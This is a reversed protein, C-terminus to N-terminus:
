LPWCNSKHTLYYIRRYTPLNQKRGQYYQCRKEKGEETFNQYRERAKKQRKNKKEKLFIKIDKMHKKRFDKQTNKIIKNVMKTYLFFIIFINKNTKNIHTINTNKLKKEDCNEEDCNGEDSNEKKPFKPISLLRKKKLLM